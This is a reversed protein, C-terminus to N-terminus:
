GGYGLDTEDWWIDEFDPVADEDELYFYQVRDLNAHDWGKLWADLRALVEEGDGLSEIFTKDCVPVRMGGTRFWEVGRYYAITELESM